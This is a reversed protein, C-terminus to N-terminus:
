DPECGGTRNHDPQYKGFIRCGSREQHREPRCGEKASKYLGVVHEKGRVSAAAVQAVDSQGDGPRSKNGQNTEHLGKLQHARGPRDGRCHSQVEDKVYGAISSALRLDRQRKRGLAYRRGLGQAGIASLIWDCAGAGAGRRTKTSRHASGGAASRHAWAWIFSACTTAILLASRLHAPFSSDSLLTRERLGSM